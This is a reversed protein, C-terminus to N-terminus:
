FECINAESDSRMDSLRVWPKHEAVRKTWDLFEDISMTLKAKNCITCCPAVNSSVYGQLNNIRDIGTYEFQGRLDPKSFVSACKSGCYYCQGTVLDDFLEDSIEWSFGRLKANTKYSLLLANRCSQGDKM